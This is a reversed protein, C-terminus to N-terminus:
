NMLIFRFWFGVVSTSFGCWLRSHTSDSDYLRYATQNPGVEGINPCQAEIYVTNLKFERLSERLRPLALQWSCAGALSRAQRRRSGAAAPSPRAVQREWCPEDKNSTKVIESDYSNFFYRQILEHIADSAM